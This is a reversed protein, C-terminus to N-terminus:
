RWSEVQLGKVRRFERVNGTALILGEARAQAAILVDYPGIPTGREALEARVAGAVRGARQDIELVVVTDLFAEVDDLAKDPSGSRLAGYTLEAISVSSVAAGAGCSRFRQDVHPTRARIVAVAVDTDLLHTLGAM